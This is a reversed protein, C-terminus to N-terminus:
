ECQQNSASVKKPILSLQTLTDEKALLSKFMFDFKLPDFKIKM